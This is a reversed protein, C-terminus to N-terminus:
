RECSLGSQFLQLIFYLDVSYDPVDDSLGNGTRHVHILTEQIQKHERRGAKKLVLVEPLFSENQETM